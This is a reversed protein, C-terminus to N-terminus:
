RKISTYLREITNNIFIYPNEYYCAECHYSKDLISEQECCECYGTTKPEFDVISYSEEQYESNLVKITM